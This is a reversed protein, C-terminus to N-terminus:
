RETNTVSRKADEWGKLMTGFHAPNYVDEESAWM